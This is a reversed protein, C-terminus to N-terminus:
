SPEEPESSPMGSFFCWLFLAAWFARAFFRAIFFSPPAM